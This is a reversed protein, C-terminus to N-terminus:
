VPSKNITTFSKHLVLCVKQILKYCCFQEVTHWLNVLFCVGAKSNLTKGEQLSSLGIQSVTKDMALPSFFSFFFIYEHKKSPLLVCTVEDLIQVKKMLYCPAGLTFWIGLYHDVHRVQQVNHWTAGLLKCYYIMKLGNINIIVMLTFQKYLHLSASSGGCTQRHVSLVLYKKQFRSSHSIIGFFDNTGSGNQGLTTTATLTFYSTNKKTHTHPPNIDTLDFIVVTM